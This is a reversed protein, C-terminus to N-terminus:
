LARFVLHPYVQEAHLGDRQVLRDEVAEFASLCHGYLPDDFVIYAGPVLYKKVVDYSYAVSSFIDCDIHVLAVPGLKDLAASATDEFMGRVFDLNALNKQAAYARLADLDAGPHEGEFHTDISPDTAPMGSFTDFGVVRAGPMTEQAIRLMFIASGGLYSGFEVIHGFPLRPTFFKLLMFINMASSRALFSRGAALEVADRFLPDAECLQPANGREIGYARLLGQFPNRGKRDEQSVGRFRGPLKLDWEM